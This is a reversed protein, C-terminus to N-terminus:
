SKESAARLLTVAVLGYAGFLSLRSSHGDVLLGQLASWSMRILIYFGDRLLM